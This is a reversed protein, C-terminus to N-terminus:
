ELIEILGGYFLVEFIPNMTTQGDWYLNANKEVLDPNTVDIELLKSDVKYISERIVCGNEFEFKKTKTPKLKYLPSKNISTGLNNYWKEILEKEEILYICSLRSPKNSFKELRVKEFIIERLIRQIFVDNDISKNERLLLILSNVNEISPNMFFIIIDDVLKASLKGDNLIKQKNEIIGQPFANRNLEGILLLNKDGNRVFEDRILGSKDIHYYM